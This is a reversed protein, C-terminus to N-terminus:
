LNSVNRGGEALRCGQWTGRRKLENVVSYWMQNNKLGWTPAVRIALPASGYLRQITVSPPTLELFDCLDAVYQQHTLPVFRGDYYWEALRTDKVAHLQHIKLSNVPLSSILQATRIFDASSEGPFGHILHTCIDMGRGSVREVAQLYDALTHGRNIQTLISDDMSQLGLELCVYSTRALDTLLDIAPDSLADPRTGISIGVVDPHALARSYLDHLKEVPGYTNTFKQFYIIFKESGLRKRHYAMGEAMQIEVPIAAVTGGPSFSSNDCYICGGTGRVGDRNPCTFGGDVNVKSIRCGFRRRLYSGYSNIHLDPHISTSIM